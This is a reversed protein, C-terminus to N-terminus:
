QDYWRTGTAGNESSVIGLPINTGNNIYPVAFGAADTMFEDGTNMSGIMLCQVPFLVVVVPNGNTAAAAPTCNCAQGAVTAQTVTNTVPNYVAARSGATTGVSIATVTRRVVFQSWDNLAPNKPHRTCIFQAVGDLAIWIAGRAVSNAAPRDGTIPTAPSVGLTGTLPQVGVQEWFSGNWRYASNDTTSEAYTWGTFPTPVLAFIESTTGKFLRRDTQEIM